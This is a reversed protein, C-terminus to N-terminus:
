VRLHYFIIEPGLQKATKLPPQLLVPKNRKNNICFTPDSYSCENNRQCERQSDLIYTRKYFTSRFQICFRLCLKTHRESYKTFLTNFIGKLTTSTMSLKFHLIYLFTLEPLFRLKNVSNIHRM